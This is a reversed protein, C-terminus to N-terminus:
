AEGRLPSDSFVEAMIKKVQERREETPVSLASYFPEEPKPLSARIAAREKLILGLIHGENPCKDPNAVVAARCAEDIEPLTFDQLADMWDKRLITRVNPDMRDWGFKDTKRALVELRLGVQARHNDLEQPSLSRTLHVLRPHYVSLETTM